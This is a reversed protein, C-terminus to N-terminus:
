KATYQGREVRKFKGSKILAINVMTRFNAANTKYGSKRVAEAADTVGMTKGDLVKALAEVLSLENRPRVGGGGGGRGARRRGSIAGGLDAIQADLADLKKQLTARKRELTGVSRSRRAMERRLDANSISALASRRGM